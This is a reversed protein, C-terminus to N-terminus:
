GGDGSAGSDEIPPEGPTGGTEARDESPEFRISPNQLKFRMSFGRGALRLTTPVWRGAISRYRSLELRMARGGKAQVSSLRTRSKNLVLTGRPTEISHTRWKRRYTSPKERFVAGELYDRILRLGGYLYEQLLDSSAGDVNLPDMVFGDGESVSARFMPTFLPGLVDVTLKWPAKYHLIGQFKFDKTGIKGEVVCPGGYVTLVGRTRSLIRAYNEGLQEPSFNGEVRSLKKAFEPKKPAYIQAMKWAGWAEVTAGMVEYADGLHDWVTEDDPLLEIAKKLQTLAEDRRGQKFYVWGLSDVYAGNDPSLEVARNVLEEAEDLKLGRDALSYGLYNLASADRPHMKLLMRFHEEAKVIDGLKEYIAGLQFRADRHDPRKEVVKLLLEVAKSQKKLDDYGLALFYALEANEPWKKHANELVAVAGKLQSDQTLYYSLRLSLSPDEELASSSRVHEIATKYDKESEAILALALCATADSPVLERARTFYRKAGEFDDKMYHMEGVHDLLAVNKPDLRLINLYEALAAETDRRVEYIQALQLRPQVSGPDNEISLKLYTVSEDLHGSRQEMLAIRYAAESANDPNKALYDKLYQKAREPSQSSLLNGLAFLAEHYDPKLELTKEFSTQAERWEGRAWHVNGMQYHALHSEPSLEVFRGAFEAARDTKGVELALDAAQRYMFASQPDLELAAEYERLAAEYKGQNTLLLAKLYHLYSAKPSAWALAPGLVLAPLLIRLFRRPRVM